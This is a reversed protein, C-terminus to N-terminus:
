YLCHELIPSLLEFTLSSFTRSSRIRLAIYHQLTTINYHQLTTPDLVNCSSVLATQLDNCMKVWDFGEQQFSPSHTASGGGDFDGLPVDESKDETTVLPAEEHVPGSTDV